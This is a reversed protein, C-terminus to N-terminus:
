VKVGRYMKRMLKKFENNIHDMAVRFDSNLPLLRKTVYYISKIAVSFHRLNKFLDPDTLGSTTIVEELSIDSVTFLKYVYNNKPVGTHNIGWFLSVPLVSIDIDISPPICKVLANTSTISSDSFGSNQIFPSLLHSTLRAQSLSDNLSNGPPSYTNKETSFSINSMPLKSSFSLENKSALASCMSQIHFRYLSFARFNHENLVKAIDDPLDPLINNPSIKMPPIYQVYLIHCFVLILREMIQKKGEYSATSYGTAIRLLLRSRILTLLFFNSPEAFSFYALLAADITPDGSENIFDEQMLYHDSFLVEYKIVDSIHNNSATSSVFPSHFLTLAMGINEKTEQNNLLIILRLLTSTSWIHNGYLRGVPATNLLNFKETHINHFIVNGILDYGRRGARGSMQRFQLATLFLSDKYFVVTKCPMHIGLALTSTSILIKVYGCRYSIESFQKEKNTLEEHHIMIGRALLRKFLPINDKYRMNDILKARDGATLIGRNAFTYYEDVEDEEPIASLEDLLGQIQAEVEERSEEGLKTDLRKRLKDIERNLERIVKEKNVSKDDGDISAKIKELQELEGLLTKALRDVDYLDTIFIICPLKNSSELDRLFKLDRSEKLKDMDQENLTKALKRSTSFSLQQEQSFELRLRVMLQEYEKQFGNQALKLLLQSLEKDYDRVDNKSIERIDSFFLNPDLSPIINLTDEDIEDSERSVWRLAEFAGLCEDSILTLDEPYGSTRLHEYKLCTWPHVHHLTNTKDDFRFKSLDSFRQEHSILHVTAAHPLRGAGTLKFKNKQVGRLWTTFEMANRITASLALFPSQILLLIREWCESKEEASICHVEDLIVYSIRKVLLMCEPDTSLLLYEFPEPLTILIQNQFPKMEYGQALIGYLTMSLNKFTKHGFQAYNSAAVQNMLEKSPSVYVVLDEDNARLTKLMNYYSIFTKGSSTPAHIVASEGRDVADLLKVQWVDPIFNSVREDRVKGVDRPMLHGMYKLQFEVCTLNEMGEDTCYEDPNILNNVDYDIDKAVLSAYLNFGLELIATVLWKRAKASLENEEETCNHEIIANVLQLINCVSTFKNKDDQYIIVLYQLKRLQAELRYSKSSCTYIFADLLRIHNDTVLSAKLSDKLRSWEERYKSDTETIKKEMNQKIILDRKSSAKKNQAEAKQKPQKESILKAKAGKEKERKQKAIVKEHIKEVIIPEKWGLGGSLSASYFTMFKHYQQLRRLKKKRSLEEEDKELGKTKLRSEMNGLLPFFIDVGKFPLPGWHIKNFHIRGKSEAIEKQMFEKLNGSLRHVLRTNHLPIEVNPISLHGPLTVLDYQFSVVCPSIIPFFQSVPIGPIKSWFSTIYDTVVEEFGLNTIDLSVSTKMNQLLCIGIYTILRGDIIDCILQHNAGSTISPENPSKQSVFMPHQLGGFPVETNVQYESGYVVHHMLLLSFCFNSHLDILKSLTDGSSTKIEDPIYINRSNIDFHKLIALHIIFVKIYFETLPGDDTTASQLFYSLTPVLLIERLDQNESKPIAQFEKLLSKQIEDINRSFGQYSANAILYSVSEGLHSVIEASSPEYYSELGVDIVIYCFLRMLNEVVSGIYVCNTHQCLLHYEFLLFIDAKPSNKLTSYHKDTIFAIYPYYISTYQKFKPDLWSNYQDLLTLDTNNKLHTILLERALIKTPDSLWLSRM